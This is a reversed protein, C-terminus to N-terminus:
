KGRKFYSCKCILRGNKRCRDCHIKPPPNIIRMTEQNKDHVNISHATYEAHRKSCCDHEGSDEVALFDMMKNVTTIYTNVPLLDFVDSMKMESM